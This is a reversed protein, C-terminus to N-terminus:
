RFVLASTILQMVQTMPHPSKSAAATVVTAGHMPMARAMHLHNPVSLQWQLHATSVELCSGCANSQLSNISSIQGVAINPWSEPGIPGYGCSASGRVIERGSGQGSCLLHLARMVDRLNNLTAVTVVALVCASILM